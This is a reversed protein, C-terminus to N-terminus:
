LEAQEPEPLEKQVAIIIADIMEATGATAAAAELKEIIYYPHAYPDDGMLIRAAVVTVGPLVLPEPYYYYQTVGQALIGWGVAGIVKIEGDNGNDTKAAEQALKKAWDRSALMHFGPIYKDPGIEIPVSLSLGRGAHYWTDMKYRYCGQYSALPGYRGDPFQRVVSWGIAQRIRPEVAGAYLCM